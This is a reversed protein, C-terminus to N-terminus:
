QQRNYSSHRSPNNKENGTNRSKSADKENNIDRNNSCPTGTTVRKEATALNGLFLTIGGASM